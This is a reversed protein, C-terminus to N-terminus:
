NCRPNFAAVHPETGAECKKIATRSICCAFGLVSGCSKRKERHNYLLQVEPLVFVHIYLFGFGIGTGVPCDGMSFAFDNFNVFNM